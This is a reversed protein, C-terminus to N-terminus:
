AVGVYPTEVGSADGFAFPAGAVPRPPSFLVPCALCADADPYRLHPVALLKEGQRLAPLTRLVASPLATRRRLRTADEGLAGMTAGPPPHADAALHFRRDWVANARAAVPAAMAAAERVVLLGPGLSGAPLLRAGALTAPRPWAALTAVAKSAPAFPAGAIAQIVRALAAATLEHGDTVAFGEPRLLVCRALEAAVRMDEAARRRGMAAATAALAATAPGRGERDCRLARLRPRLATRDANSPDDAWAIGLAALMARLAAPPVDLLPRLLRVPALEVLPAMAAMGAPGSGGLARILVTEAQDAVHHGVLLHLIGAEACATTLADLRAERAREALAPGRRLGAVPLIRSPIRREALRAAAEAAETGSEPRLGHDVILALLSGGRARAWEAALVALALSDAGGSVGAAVRPAPEFPGLEAMAAAFASAGTM